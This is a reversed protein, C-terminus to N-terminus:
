LFFSPHMLFGNLFQIYFIPRSTLVKHKSTVFFPLLLWDAHRPVTPINYIYQHVIGAPLLPNSGIWSPYRRNPSYSLHWRWPGATCSGSSLVWSPLFPYPGCWWDKNLPLVHLKGWHPLKNHGFMSTSASVFTYQYRSIWANSNPHTLNRRAHYLIGFKARFLNLPHHLSPSFKHLCLGRFAFSTASNIKKNSGPWPVDVIYQYHACLLCGAGRIVPATSLVLLGPNM